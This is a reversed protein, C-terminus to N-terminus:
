ELCNEIEQLLAKLACIHMVVSYLELWLWQPPLPHNATTGPLEKFSLKFGSHSIQGVGQRLVKLSPRFPVTLFAPQQEYLSETGILM